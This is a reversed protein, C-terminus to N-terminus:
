LNELSAMLSDLGDLKENTISTEMLSSVQQSFNVFLSEEFIIRVSLSISFAKNVKNILSVALLSHGGLEFFNDHRGVQEADLIESWIQALQTEVKGEPAAFENNSVFEPEPLAKRDIKGSPNLPLADLLVIISPVMYDPLTKGLASKLESTDLIKDASAAVYAILRAGSQSAKAVVVAESVNDQKLLESEIEGLEIRFGRIKVQHDIRGLYELESNNNWRVLDGTRYLRGGEKNFPDAIFSQATLTQRGLYGRALLEGGICLEGAVGTPVQTLGADLVYLDRGALPSGIPMQQPLVRAGSIYDACDSVSATVVAETPGYTNLLTINELNAQQWVSISEPSMAEGGFHIERLQGYDRTGQEAFYQILMAGYATPLDAVTIKKDILQRYFTEADWLESGRLVISAGLTLPPFMQEIFGDFNITSFQLMRDNATLSFFECSVLVHEAFGAHSIAVAKPKGTSGSTYILYALNHKNLTIDPNTNLERGLLLIDICTVTIDQIQNFQQALENQSLLVTLGSDEIMYALREQPYSPDLPVFAGGAKLVALLSVVMDVSREVAIGVKDEPKVGQAILYHALQNARQNLEQYSLQEDEFVLATANPTLEVQQEILQHVPQTNDYRTGNVGWTTLQKSERDSIFDITGLSQVANKILQALVGSLHRSLQKITEKNYHESDYNFEIILTDSYSITLTLPYNTEERNNLEGFVLGDPAESKLADDVPYNEFVIISDFVGQNGQGAWRHIDTLPTYEYERTSLNQSQLERLWDGIVQEPSVNVIVPLTNIFLGIQQDIGEIDGPRGAVTAGFVINTQSSYRSLLLSWAGQVLTNITIHNKKTFDSLQATDAANLTLQVNGYGTVEKAGTKPLSSVLRTPSELRGLQECWFDEAKKMDCSTLWSIYDLYRSTVAPLVQGTYHRLVEALLLSTSWGDLLLHHRTWIFHWTNDTTRVLAIKMLPPTDLCFGEALQNAALEKIKASVYQEDRWDFEICPLEVTKAVWQLSQKDHTVFGTRLIDHRNLIEQWASKFRESDLESIDLALQNVYSTGTEDYISHFYMGSQMPSLPYLDGLQNLPLTLQDLEIQSLKVLPFDSPTIGMDGSTCHIILSKLQALYNDLLAQAQAQTHIEQSYNLSIKLEGEFMLVNFDLWTRRESTLSREVGKAEDSLRWDNEKNIAQDFQGLYNFTVQPYPAQSLVKGETSLYRLAGYSLGNHPVQRLTEKVSKLLSATNEHNTLRVPYLSTFWGVTSSIDLDDFLTERGHGELEVLVDDRGSWQCLVPTLAALLIDNIQTRYAKPVSSLLQQTQQSNLEVSLEQSSALTNDGQANGPLDAQSKSVVDLWYDLEQTFAGAKAQNSLQESWTKFGAGHEVNLNEGQSLSVYISQLDELIIRWSVGDVVLHHGTLLLQASGQGLNFGIAKFPQKFSLSAQIQDASTKIAQSKNEANTLDILEFAVDANQTNYYQLWQDDIKEFCMTLAPHRKILLQVAQKVLAFDCGQPAQLMVSQNWHEAESFEQEFFWQQTPLLAFPTQSLVENIPVAAKNGKQTTVKALESITQKAMLAKPTFKLGQKRARAVIQLALISDGGLEFFNDQNAINEVKLVERWITTLLAETNDVTTNTPMKIVTALAAITQKAMLAKPTFKLGKKRARAVVQLALISDGGLEFFNDHRGIQEVKLLEQWIKALVTEKPGQVQQSDVQVLHDAQNSKIQALLAKKDLKGNANLPLVALETLRTPVMYDPLQTALTQRIAAIDLNNDSTPVIFAYLQARGEQEKVIVAADSINEINFLHQKVENLEVRYGRIKVQEDVRGIFEFTGDSLQKVKDGTRYLRAGSGEPDAIFREATQGTQALYGQALSIGGIFLEGVVGTPVAQLDAGLICVKTNAIPLGLTIADVIKGSSILKHTLVGVTSETPGYHNLVELEPALQNIQSLLSQSTAEGGVILLQKPLVNQPEAASLLGHLHSPVIKLVEIHHTTMYQAFADPDFAVDTSILHLTRGSCLAGFLTTNGLDAAVTSVMAMSKVTEPLALETLVGQVYNNLANHSIVVGKPQGTTGSTYIMYAAQAPHIPKVVFDVQEALNEDADLNIDSSIGLNVQAIAPIEGLWDLATVTLVAAAQSDKLQYLLRQQPQQPDLPLYMGGSKLVALIALVFECSREALIAVCTGNKIGQQQLQSALQNARNDLAKFTLSNDQDQVAIQDAKTTVSKHWLDLVNDDSFELEVGQKESPHNDVTLLALAQKPTALVQEAFSFFLDAFRAITEPEFLASNYNFAAAIESGEDTFDFSLDFHAEEAGLGEIEMTLGAFQYKGSNDDHTQQTCKVQFLPHVGPKRAPKLTEVLMDFPVDPNSQGGLVTARVQTLLETFGTTVDLQTRLVQVNTLYGILGHTEARTRNAIPSGIRLDTEGTMRYLTLKLLSLMVMYLSSQQQTALIKLATAVRETLLFSHGAGPMSTNAVRSHDFPLNLETHEHGLHQCWYDLQKDMEGADLWSRQWISFDAFQIPLEALAASTGTVAETYLAILEDIFIQLSWGDAAIHHISVLLHYSDDPFCLLSARFPPEQDLQFAQSAFENSLDIAKVDPQQVATLDHEALSINVDQKVQQVPEGEETLVFLTRLTEHRTVLANISQQLAQKNLKGEVKLVGSMNYASSEPNLQWTLWLSRQAYSLPISDAYLYRTEVIPLELFDLEHLQLKNLFDRRSDPALKIFRNALQIENVSM